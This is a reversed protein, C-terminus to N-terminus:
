GPFDITLGPDDPDAVTVSLAIRSTEGEEVPVPLEFSEAAIEASM